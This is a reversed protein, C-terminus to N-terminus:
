LLQHINDDTGDRGRVWTAQTPQRQTAAIHHTFSPKERMRFEGEFQHIRVIDAGFRDTLRLLQGVRQSKLHPIMKLIYVTDLQWRIGIIQYDNGVRHVM